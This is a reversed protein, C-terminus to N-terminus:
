YMLKCNIKRICKEAKQLCIGSKWPTCFSSKQVFIWDTFKNEFSISLPAIRWMYDM